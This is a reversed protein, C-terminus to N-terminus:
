RSSVELPTSAQADCLRVQVSYSGPLLYHVGDSAAEMEDASEERSENYADAAAEDVSMDYAVYNLGREAEHEIVRLELGDDGLIHM